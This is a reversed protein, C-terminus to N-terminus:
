REIVGSRAERRDPPRAEEGQPSMIVGSRAERRDPPRAEEGLPSM